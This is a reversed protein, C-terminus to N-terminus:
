GLFMVDMMVINLFSTSMKAAQKEKGIWHKDLLTTEYVSGIDLEESRLGLDSLSFLFTSLFYFM